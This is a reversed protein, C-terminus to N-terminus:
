RYLCQRRYEFLTIAVSQAVNLSEVAPSQDMPIYLLKTSAGLLDPSIGKGENGFIFGVPHRMDFHYDYLSQATHDLATAFISFQSEKRLASVFELLSHVTHSNLDFHAGMGARLVKPSWLDVCGKSLIIQKIGAARVTRLITGMNGPDQINDLLVLSEQFISVNQSEPLVALTLCSPLSELQSLQMFLNKPLVFFATNKLQLAFRKKIASLYDYPIHEEQFIIAEPIRGTDCYSEFLHEGELLVRKEVQRNKNSLTLKKLKKFFTNEASHIFKFAETMILIRFFLFEIYLIM